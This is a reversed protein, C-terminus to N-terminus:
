CTYNHVVKGTAKFDKINGKIRPKVKNGAEKLSSGISLFIQAKGDKKPRVTIKYLKLNSCDICLDQLPVTEKYCCRLCRDLM